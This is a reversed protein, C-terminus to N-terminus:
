RSKLAKKRANKLARGARFKAKNLKRRAAKTLVREIISARGLRLARARQLPTTRKAKARPRPNARMARAVLMDEFRSAAASRRRSKSRKMPNTKRGTISMGDPSWNYDEFWDHRSSTHEEPLLRTQGRRRGALSALRRRVADLPKQRLTAGAFKARRRVEDPDYVDSGKRFEKPPPLVAYTMQSPYKKFLKAYEAATGEGGKVRFSNAFISKYKEGERPRLHEPTGVIFTPIFSRRPRRGHLKDYRDAIAGAERVHKRNLNLVAQSAEKDLRQLEQTRKFEGGGFRGIRELETDSYLFDPNNRRLRRM